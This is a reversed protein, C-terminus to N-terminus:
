SYWDSHKLECLTIIAAPLYFEVRDIIGETLHGIVGSGQKSNISGFFKDGAHGLEM